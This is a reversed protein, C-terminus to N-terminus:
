KETAPHPPQPHIRSRHLEADDRYVWLGHGIDYREAFKHQDITEQRYLM